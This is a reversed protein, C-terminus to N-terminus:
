LSASVCIRHGYMDGCTLAVIRVKPEGNTKSSQLNLDDAASAVSSPVVEESVNAIPIMCVSLIHEVYRSIYFEQDSLMLSPLVDDKPATDLLFQDIDVDGTKLVLSKWNEKGHQMKLPVLKYGVVLRFIEKAPLNFDSFNSEYDELTVARGNVFLGIVAAVADLDSQQKSGTYRKSLRQIRVFGFGGPGAGEAFPEDGRNFSHSDDAIDLQRIRVHLNTTCWLNLPDDSYNQCAISQIVVNDQVYWQVVAEWINKDKIVVRPWRNRLWYTSISWDNTNGPMLIDPGFGQSNEILKQIDRTRKQM